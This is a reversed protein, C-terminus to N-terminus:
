RLNSELTFPSELPSVQNVRDLPQPLTLMLEPEYCDTSFSVTM